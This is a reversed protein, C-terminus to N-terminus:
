SNVHLVCGPAAGHIHGPLRVQGNADVFWPAQFVSARNRAATQAPPLAGATAAAAAAPTTRAQIQEVLRRKNSNAESRKQLVLLQEHLFAQYDSNAKLAQQLAAVNPNPADAATDDLSSVSAAAAAVAGASSAAAAHSSARHSSM